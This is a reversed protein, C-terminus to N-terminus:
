TDDENLRNIHSQVAIRKYATNTGGTATSEVVTSEDDGAEDAEEFEYAESDCPRTDKKPRTVADNRRRFYMVLALILLIILLAGFWGVAVLWNDDVNVDYFRVGGLVLYGLFQIFAMSWINIALRRLRKKELKAVDEPRMGYDNGAPDNAAYDSGIGWVAPDNAFRNYLYLALYIVPAMFMSVLWALLTQEQAMFWTYIVAPVGVAALFGLVMVFMYQWTPVLGPVGWSEPGTQKKSRPASAYVQNGDRRFMRRKSMTQETRAGWPLLEIMGIFWAWGSGMLAFAAALTGFITGLILTGDVLNQGSYTALPNFINAGLMVVLVYFYLFAVTLASNLPSHPTYFWMGMMMPLITFAILWNAVETLPAHAVISEELIGLAVVVESVGM